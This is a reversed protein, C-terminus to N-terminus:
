KWWMACITFDVETYTFPHIDQTRMYPVPATDPYSKGCVRHCMVCTCLISKIYQRTAPIWYTQRLATLTANTGSHYLRRHIDWIVLRSFPHKAPLLYPFKTLDSLPANHIHGGCCLFGKSDIFLRLQQTLKLRPAKPQRLNDIEKNYVSLQTDKIWRLKATVYEEACIPGTRRQDQSLRVNDAFRIVYATVALLKHLTSHHNISIVCHLGTDPLVPTSPVFETEVAAALVLPSISLLPWKAPDPLWKPGHSWLPSSMLAEATTGRSLLDAQNTLQPAIGGPLM